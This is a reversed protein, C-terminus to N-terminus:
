WEFYPLSNIVDSLLPREIEGSQFDNLWEYCKTWCKDRYEIFKFAEEKFQPITSEAYSALTFGNDYNKERALSDLMNQIHDQIQKILEETTMEEYEKRIEQKKLDQILMEFEKSNELVDIDGFSVDEIILDKIRLHKEDSYFVDGVSYKFETM